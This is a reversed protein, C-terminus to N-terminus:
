SGSAINISLNVAVSIYRRVKEFPFLSLNQKFLIQFFLININCVCSFNFKFYLIYCLGSALELACKIHDLPGITIANRALNPGWAQTQCMHVLRDLGFKHSVAM